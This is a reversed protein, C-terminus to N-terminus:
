KDHDRDPDYSYSDDRDATRKKEEAKKVINEASSFDAKPDLELITNKIHLMRREDPPHSNFGSPETKNVASLRAIARYMGVPDVGHEVALQVAYDDAEIEQARSWGSNALNAGVNVAASGLDSDILEGLLLSAISLGVARSRAKAIHKLKVHGAEHAFVCYLEDESQLLNLLSTTVTVSKDNTVWANPSSDKKVYFPLSTLETPRAVSEWVANARSPSISASAPLACLAIFLAAAAASLISKKLCIVEVTM